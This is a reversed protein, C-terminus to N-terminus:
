EEEPLNANHIVEQVDDNDELLDLMKQFSVVQKEDLDVYNDPVLTSEYSLVKLGAGELKEAVEGVTNPETEVSICDDEDVVDLAGCDLATMMVEDVDTEITKELVIIGKQNFMYSVCGTAGLNGSHKDFAHRVDGSTRNINDTLCRVIVATGGIGYGEYTKEEYNVSGLEGSAKKISRTISDNPMNNQKAKAIMDRLKSNTNPDAGGMKVAVAIERGIKTFIKGRAADTKGKKAQINHWKSHGSM